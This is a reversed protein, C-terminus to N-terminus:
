ILVALDKMLFPKLANETLLLKICGAKIDNLRIFVKGEPYYMKDEPLTEYIEVMDDESSGAYMKFRYPTLCGGGIDSVMCNFYIAKIETVESLKIMFDIGNHQDSETIFFQGHGKSTDSAADEAHGKSDNSTLVANKLNYKKIEGDYLGFKLDLPKRNTRVFSLTPMSQSEKCYIVLTNYGANLSISTITLKSMTKSSTQQYAGNLYISIEKEADVEMDVTDPNLLLDTRDQPSYISVALVCDCIRDGERKVTWVSKAEMKNIGPVLAAIDEDESVSKYLMTNLKDTYISTFLLENLEDNRIMSVKVGAMTLMRVMYNKLKKNRVGLSMQSIYISSGSYEHMSLACYRSNDTQESKLISVTKLYEANHNWMRWDIDPLGLIINQKAEQHYIMLRDAMVEEKGASLGYLNNGYLGLEKTMNNVPTLHYAKKDTIEFLYSFLEPTKEAQFVVVTEFNHCGIYSLWDLKQGGDILLTREQKKNLLEMLEDKTILEYSCHVEDLMTVLKSGHKSYLYAPKPEMLCAEKLYTGMEILLKYYMPEEEAKSLDLGCVIRSMGSECLSAAVPMGAGNFYLPRCNFSLNESLYFEKRAHMLSYANTNNLSFVKKIDHEKMFVSYESIRRIDIAPVNLPSEEDGDKILAIHLSEWENKLGEKDYITFNHMEQYIIGKIEKNTYESITQNNTTSKTESLDVVTPTEIVTNYLNNDSVEKGELCEATANTYKNINDEKRLIFKLEQTGKDKFHIVIKEEVYTCAEMNYVAHYITESQHMTESQYITEVQASNERIIEFILTCAEREDNFITVPLQIDEGLYVNEPVEEVFFRVAMFAKKILDFVENPEYEPLKDEAGANLTRLFPTIRRPKIGMQEYDDYDFLRETFSLPKLGYWILNFVCVQAAWRRQGTLNHFADKAVSELRASMSSLAKQGFDMCVNDPTSFYMSGMEGITIPKEKHTTCHYGPYHLSNVQMRGGLDGSGDCSIIRTSDLPIIVKTLEYLKDELDSVDNIFKSGCVKYAPICENEPSWMVISPHNRDRIILRELHKISNKFFDPNYSFNCHSAWVASESILLMGMEDAIDYFFSPFPQAHLRIINVGVDKAMRYYSRAYEPFQISYGMYHWSDNKLNVPRGNMIFRNGEVRFTRFGINVETEDLLVEGEYVRGKLKYMNPLDIDWLEIEDKVYHWTINGGNYPGSYIVVEQNDMGKIKGSLLFEVRLKEDDITEHKPMAQYNDTIRQMKETTCYSYEIELKQEYVDTKAFISSIYTRGREILWVDQWIGGIHGGWFSGEPYDTRKKGNEDHYTNKKATKAGVILENEGGFNVYDTIEFEIPLFAETDEHILKGNLYFVSKYAVAEFYLFIRNGNSEKQVYFKRKYFGCDAKEWEIPYEPYLRFDGGKVYYEDGAIQKHYGDAFSNINYPSPVHIMKRDFCEPITDIEKSVAFEWFGNLCTKTLM